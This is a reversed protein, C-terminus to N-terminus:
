ERESISLLVFKAMESNSVTTNEDLILKGLINKAEDTKGQTDKILAQNILLMGKTELDPNNALGKSVAELREQTDNSSSAIVKWAPAYEPYKETIQRAIQLKEEEAEIWDLQVFALYLGMPFIGEKEKQLSWCATKATFFGKPEIKNTMEYYKLANEFDKQLLYTYAM